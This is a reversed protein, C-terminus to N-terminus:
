FDVYFEPNLYMGDVRLEFHLHPGTSYGTSGVRGIVQGREVWEGAQVYLASAHAYRTYIGGGHDLLIYKGWGPGEWAAIVVGDAFAAFPTGTYVAIDTGFHFHVGGFIPDWRFGFPSSVPGRLPATFALDLPLYYATANVPLAHGYFEAQHALFVAVAAPEAVGPSEDADLLSIQALGQPLQPVPFVEEIPPPIAKSLSLPLPSVRPLEPLGAAEVDETAVGGFARITIEGLVELITAEGTLTEGLATIAARYNMDEELMPLVTARM